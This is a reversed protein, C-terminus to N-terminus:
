WDPLIEDVPGFPHTRAVFGSIRPFAQRLEIIEWSVMPSTAVNITTTYGPMMIDTTPTRTTVINQLAIQIRGARM